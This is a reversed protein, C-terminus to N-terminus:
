LHDGYIGNYARFQGGHNEAIAGRAAGLVSARIEDVLVPSIANSSNLLRGCRSGVFPFQAWRMARGSQLKMNASAICSQGCGGPIRITQRNAASARPTKTAIM